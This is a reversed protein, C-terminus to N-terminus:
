CAKCPAPGGGFIYGILRVADSVNVSINCDADGAQLPTPAAGGGFVYQILFVADSINVLGNGDADGALFDCVRFSQYDSWAKVDCETIGQVRWYYTSLDTLGSVEYSNANVQQDIEPSLFAPDDDVQLQYFAASEQSDWTLELPTEVQAADAPQELIPKGLASPVQGIWTRWSYGSTGAYEHLFWVLNQDEPDACLGGYDGWRTPSSGNRHGDGARLLKSAPDNLFDEVYHIGIYEDNSSRSFMAHIRDEPDAYIAPFYYHRGDAGYVADLPATSTTTDIGIMRIAAVTGSGWDYAQSFTTYVMGNRYIVEQTMPGLTSLTPAGGLQTAEPPEDYSFSLNVRPRIYAVPMTLPNSIKWYTTYTAGYWINSLLFEGDADSYSVAPKITFATSLNHYRLNWIDEWSMLTGAYLAAKDLIRIKSYLFGGNFQWMNSTLYVAEDYDFGLGPYDPWTSTELSGNLTADLNYSYWDDMASESQSVSVLFSSQSVDDTCLFFIIFRGPNPDYVVKPDFIFYSPPPPTTNQFWYEATSQLLQAGTKKDYVAISSNVVVVIHDPGVAVHPDPPNWGTDFIGAYSRCPSFLDSSKDARNASPDMINHPNNADYTGTILKDVEDAPPTFPIKHYKRIPKSASVPHPVSNIFTPSTIAAEITQEHSGHDFVARQSEVPTAQSPVTLAGILIALLIGLHRTM